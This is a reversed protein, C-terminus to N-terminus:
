QWLDIRKANVLRPKGNIYATLVLDVEHVGKEKCDEEIAAAMEEITKITMGKILWNPEAKQDPHKELYESLLSM